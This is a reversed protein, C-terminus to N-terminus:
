KPTALLENNVKQNVHNEKVHEELHILANEIIDETWSEIDGSVCARYTTEPDTGYDKEQELALIISTFEKRFVENDAEVPTQAHIHRHNSHIQNDEIRFFDSDIIFPVANDFGVNGIYWDCYVLGHAHLDGKLKRAMYFYDRIKAITITKFDFTQLMPMLKWTDGYAVTPIVGDLNKAIEFAAAQMANYESAKKHKMVCRYDTYLISLANVTIVSTPNFEINAEKLKTISDLISARVTWKEERYHLKDDDREFSLGEYPEPEVSKPIEDINLECMDLGDISRETQSDEECLPRVKFEISNESEEFLRKAPTQRTSSM